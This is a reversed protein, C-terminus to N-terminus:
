LKQIKELGLQSYISDNEMFFKRIDKNEQNVEEEPKAWKVQIGQEQIIKEATSWSFRNM